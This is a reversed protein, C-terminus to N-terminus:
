ASTSKVAKVNHDQDEYGYCSHAQERSIYGYELDRMVLEQRREKPDGLGGGGPIQCIITQGPLISADGGSTAPKGNIVLKGNPAAHGGLIGPVPFHFRGGRFGVLISHEPGIDGELVQMEFQQGLGGRFRGPGASDTWLERRKILVPIESELIEAPTNGINVPFTLCSVGDQSARAGLGGNASNLPAFETGDRRKGFLYQAWLPTSGSGAVVRDPLAPALANFIIEPVFNGISTRAFVPAPFTANLVTGKEALIRIPALTGENAQVPLSLLAGIAFYTYASTYTLTCNIAPRVQRSSGSFDVTISDGQVTVAVQLTIPKGDLIDIPAEHSYTGDPIRSIEARAIEESRNVIEDALMQLDDWGREACLEKLRECGVHNASIQARMDGLVTQSLRVNAAIFAFVDQNPKGAQFLKCVPIRLGEEYNDRSETTARRGGIDVHHAGCAAFGILRGRCFAPTVVFIDNHHGSGNWPDNGVLVDGELLKETSHARLMHHLMPRLGGCIGPTSDTSQVLLRSSADFIACAYDNVDRVVTSFSTRVLAAALEDVTSALRRWLMELTVPDLQAQGTHETVQMAGAHGLTVVLSGFKDIVVSADASVITTSEAEEIITPGAISIGSPLDKRKYVKHLVYRKALPCYAERKSYSPLAEPHAPVTESYTKGPAYATVRLNMIEIELDDFVRGYLQEYVENFLRRIHQKGDADVLAGHIPVAIDYGQGVYRMDASREFWVTKPAVNRPLGLRAEREMALLTEEVKPLDVRSLRIRHTRVTDYSAPAILMGFASAVGARLPIVVAPVGIRRALDCAHVPGAGGFAVMACSSPSEGKEAVYVKAASAMNENVLSHVGWAADALSLGLPTALFQQIAHEAARQDLRMKGGLFYDPDLYGLVLDADSVTPLTGGTGYCAPGPVASASEPGVELTGKASVKAISGGGAGIEMLDVVPVRVPVGSGRKFRHVRDVEMQNVRVVKGDKILCMKATTGGMDFALVKGHGALKGYHAAAIAGAAPGSEIIQVPFARATEPSNLGGSSQMLLLDGHFHMADLRDTLKGLYRSVIPKVYANVAATSSREYEKLERLVEHSLTVLMAPAVREIIGRIAIEHDPNAFSNLLCVAVSEVGQKLLNAVAREVSSVDLTQLIRGSAHIREDVEVRLPRPILPEPFTIQLDNGDYRKERGIELVDRFGRTTILGTKAGKREIVANIVLTTGHVLTGASAVCGNAVEELNRLGEEVADSPDAPTTLVKDVEIQGTAEDILIFDTFTGGIDCGIGIAM